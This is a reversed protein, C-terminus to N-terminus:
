RGVHRSPKWKVKEAGQRIKNRTLINFSSSQTEVNSTSSFLTVVKATFVLGTLGTQYGQAIELPSSSNSLERASSSTVEVPPTTLCVLDVHFNGLETRRAPCVQM